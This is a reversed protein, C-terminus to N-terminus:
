RRRDEEHLSSNHVREWRGKKMLPVKRRKVKERDIEGGDIIFSWVLNSERKERELSEAKKKKKRKRECSSSPWSLRM